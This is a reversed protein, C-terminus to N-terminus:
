LPASGGLGSFHEPPHKPFHRDSTSHEPPDKPPHEPFHEDEKEQRWFLDRAGEWARRPWAGERAGELAGELAGERAGWRPGAM